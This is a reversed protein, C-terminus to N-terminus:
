NNIVKIGEKTGEIIVDCNKAQEFGSILGIDASLNSLRTYSGDNIVYSIINHDAINFIVKLDGQEIIFSVINGYEDFTFDSIDNIMKNQAKEIEKIEENESNCSFFLAFSALILMSRKLM